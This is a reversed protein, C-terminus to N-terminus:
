SGILYDHDNLSVQGTRIPKERTIKKGINRQENWMIQKAYRSFKADIVFVNNFAINEEKPLMWDSLKKLLEEQYPGFKQRNAGHKTRNGWLSWLHKVLSVQVKGKAFDNLKNLSHIIYNQRKTYSGARMIAIMLEQQFDELDFQHNNKANKRYLQWAAYYCLQGYEKELLAYEAGDIPYKKTIDIM